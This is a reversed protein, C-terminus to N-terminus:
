LIFSFYNRQYSSGGLDHFFILKPHNQKQLIHSTTFLSNKLSQSWGHDLMHKCYLQLHRVIPARNHHFECAKKIYYETNVTACNKEESFNNCRWISREKPWDIYNVIQWICKEWNTHHHCLYILQTGLKTTFCIIPYLIYPCFILSTHINQDSLVPYQTSLYSIKAIQILPICFIM